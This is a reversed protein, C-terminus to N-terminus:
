STARNTAQTSLRSLSFPLSRVLASVGEPWSRCVVPQQGLEKMLEGHRNVKERHNM